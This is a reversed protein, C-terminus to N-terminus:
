DLLRDALDDAVAFRDASARGLLDRDRGVGGATGHICSGIGHGVGLVVNADEVAQDGGGEVADVAIGFGGLIGVVATEARHERRTGALTLLDGALELTDNGAEAALRFVVARDEGLRM